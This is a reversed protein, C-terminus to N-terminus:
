SGIHWPIGEEKRWAAPWAGPAAAVCYGIERAEDVLCSIAAMARGQKGFLEEFAPWM